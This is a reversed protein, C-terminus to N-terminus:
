YNAMKQYIEPLIRDAELANVAEPQTSIGSKNSDHLACDGLHQRAKAM